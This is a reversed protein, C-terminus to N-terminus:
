NKEQRVESRPKKLVQQMEEIATGSVGGKTIKAMNLALGMNSQELQVRGEQTEMTGSM